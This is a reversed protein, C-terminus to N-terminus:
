PSRIARRLSCISTRAEIPLMSTTNSPRGLLIHYADMNVVDCVVFEKYFKGTSIPVHCFDTVKISPGRKIWGITYPHPHPETELKLYDVLASFTINECSEKDIILNCVKNKVSCRSYFIQHHQTTHPDKPQMVVM